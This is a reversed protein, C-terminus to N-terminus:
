FMEYCGFVVDYYEWINKLIGCCEPDNELMKSYRNFIRFITLYKEVNQRFYDPVNYFMLPPM